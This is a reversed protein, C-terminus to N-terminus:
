SFRRNLRVYRIAEDSLAIAAFHAASGVSAGIAVALGLAAHEDAAASVDAVAVAEM